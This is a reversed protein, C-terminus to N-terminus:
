KAGATTTTPPNALSSPLPIATLFYISKIINPPPPPIYVYIQPERKISETQLEYLSAARKPKKAQAKATQV